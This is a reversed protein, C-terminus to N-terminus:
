DNKNELFAAYLGSNVPSICPDENKEGVPKGQKWYDNYEPLPIHFFAYAPLNEGHNYKRYFASAQRYWEIQDHHIWDYVKKGGCTVYSNSDLVYLLAAIKKGDHTMIPLVYNGYGFITSPGMQSLGGPLNLLCEYVRKRTLGGYEADHNGLTAAWPIHRKIVPETLQQYGQRIDAYKDSLCNDGTYIVLDPTEEGVITEMAQLTKQDKDSMKNWHVDGIGLIKFTGDPHFKLSSKKPFTFAFTTSSLTVIPLLIFLSTHIFSKFM